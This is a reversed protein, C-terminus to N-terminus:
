SASPEASSSPSSTGSDSILGGGSNKALEEAEARGLGNLRQAVDFIRILAPAGKRNLTEVDADSFLRQGTEDVVTAAALRARITGASLKGDSALAAAEFAEREGATMTKVYVSGNWSPVEVLERPLDAAALIADRNLIM